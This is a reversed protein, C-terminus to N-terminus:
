DERQVLVTSGKPISNYNRLTEYNKDDKTQMGVLIEYNYYDDDSNKNIPPRNTLLM